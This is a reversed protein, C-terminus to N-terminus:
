LRVHGAERALREVGNRRTLDRGDALVRAGEERMLEGIAPGMFGAADNLLVRKNRLRRTMSYRWTQSRRDHKREQQEFCDLGADPEYITAM